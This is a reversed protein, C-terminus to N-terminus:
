VSFIKWLLYVAFVLFIVAGVRRILVMTRPSVLAHHRHVMSIIGYLWGYTGVGFGLAFLWKDVINTHVQPLQTTVSALVATLAPLFTPNFANSLATASGIILPKSSQVRDELHVRSHPAETTKDRLQLVAYVIIGGIIALKTVFATTPFTESWSMLLQLIASSAFLIGICFLTDVVAVGLAISMGTRKGKGLTTTITYAAVPGPPMSLVFGSALGVLLAVM